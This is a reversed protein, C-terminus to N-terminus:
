KLRFTLPPVFFGTARVGLSWEEGKEAQTATRVACSGAYNGPLIGYM